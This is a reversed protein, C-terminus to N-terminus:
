SGRSAEEVWRGEADFYYPVGELQLCTSAPFTGDKNRYYWGGDAQIWGAAPLCCAEEASRGLKEALSQNWQAQIQVASLDDVFVRSSEAAKGKKGRETLPFIRCSYSGTEKILPSFDFFSGETRHGDRLRKGDRYLNVYYASAGPAPQWRVIGNELTIKPIEGIIEGPETLEITLRLTQGSDTRVAKSCAAKEGSIHIQEETLIGFGEETESSLEIEYCYKKNKLVADSPSAKAAEPPSAKLEAAVPEGAPGEAKAFDDGVNEIGVAVYSDSASFAELVPIGQSDFSETELRVRIDQIPAAAAPISGAATFCLSVAAMVPLTRRNIKQQIEKRKEKKYKEKM